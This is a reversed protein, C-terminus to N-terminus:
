VAARAGFSSRGLHRYTRLGYAVMMAMLSNVILPLAAASEDFVVAAVFIGTGEQRMLCAGEIALRDARRSESLAGAATAVAVGVLNLLLTAGLLDISCRWLSEANAYLIYALVGGLSPRALLAIVREAACAAAPAIARVAAGVMLPLVCVASVSALIDRGPLDIQGSSLDLWSALGPILRPAVALYLLSSSLTLAVATSAAGGAARALPGALLGAPSVALLALGFAIAPEDRFCTAIALGALPLLIATAVFGAIMARVAVHGNPLRRADIDLGAGTMVLALVAPLIVNEVM